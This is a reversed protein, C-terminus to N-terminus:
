PNDKNFLKRLRTRCENLHWKVTGEKISLTEAIDKVPFDELYFLSCVARTVPPLVDLYAFREEWGSGAFAQEYLSATHHDDLEEFVPEDRGAKLQSLATNRVITYAWNFFTGKTEDYSSINSFVKLMGSNLATLIDHDDRFFKKCLNYLAPYLRKYLREQSTRDNKRCGELLPGWQDMLAFCHQGLLSLM